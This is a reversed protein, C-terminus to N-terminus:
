YHLLPSSPPPAEPTEPLVLSNLVGVRGDPTGSEYTIQIPPSSEKSTNLSLGSIAARESILIAARTCSVRFPQASLLDGYTELTQLPPSTPNTTVTYFSFDPFTSATTHLSNFMLDSECVGSFGHGEIIVWSFQSFSQAHASSTANPAHLILLM